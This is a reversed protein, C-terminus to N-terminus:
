HLFGPHQDGAATQDGGWIGGKKTYCLPPQPEGARTRGQLEEPEDEEEGGESPAAAPGGLGPSSPASASAPPRPPTRPPLPLRRRRGRSRPPDRPPATPTDGPPTPAPPSSAPRPGWRPRRTSPTPDTPQWARWACGRRAQWSHHTLKTTGGGPGRIETARPSHNSKM